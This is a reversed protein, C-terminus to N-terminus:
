EKISFQRRKPATAFGKMEAVRSLADRFVRGVYDSAQRTHHGSQNLTEEMYDPAILNLGEGYGAVRVAVHYGDPGLEHRFLRLEEGAAITQESISYGRSSSNTFPKAYDFASAGAAGMREVLYRIYVGADRQAQSIKGKGFAWEVYDHRINRTAKAYPHTGDERPTRYPDPILQEQEERSIEPDWGEPKKKPKAKHSRKVSMPAELNIVALNVHCNNANARWLIVNSAM